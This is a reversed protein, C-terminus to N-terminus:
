GCSGDLERVSAAATNSTEAGFTHMALAGMRSARMYASSAPYISSASLSTPSARCRRARLISWRSRTTVPTEAQAYRATATAIAANTGSSRRRRCRDDDEAEEEAVRQDELHPELEAAVVRRWLLEREHRQQQDSRERVHRQQEGRGADQGGDRVDRAVAPVPMAPQVGERVGPRGEAPTMTSAAKAGPSRSPALERDVKGGECGM